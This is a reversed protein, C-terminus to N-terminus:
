QLTKNPPVYMSWQQGRYDIVYFYARKYLPCEQLKKLHDNLIAQYNAQHCLGATVQKAIASRIKAAIADESQMAHSFFSHLLFIFIVSKILVPKEVM